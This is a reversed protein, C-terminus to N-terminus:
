VFTGKNSASARKAKVFSLLAANVDANQPQKGSDREALFNCLELVCATIDRGSMGESASRLAAYDIARADAEGVRHSAFKARFIEEREIDSPLPIYITKTFRSLIAKDIIEKVNTAAIIVINKTDTDFGDLQRILTPVAEASTKDDSKRSKAIADFEDFFVIVASNNSKVLKRLDAFLRDINKGTKGIYSDVLTNCNVSIFPLDIECAAAKAFTTKGTGPPGELLINGGAELGYRTYAEPSALPNILMRHIAEKAEKLGIIDDFSIKSKPKSVDFLAPLEEGSAADEQETAVEAKKTLLSKARELLRASEAKYKDAVAGSSMKSLQAALDAAASYYAVARRKDGKCEYDTGRKVYSVYLDYMLSQNM